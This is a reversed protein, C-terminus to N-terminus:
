EDIAVFKLSVGSRRTVEVCESLIQAKDEGLLKALVGDKQDKAYEERVEYTAQITTKVLTNIDAESMGGKRLASRVREIAEVGITYVAGQIKKDFYRGFMAGCAEEARVPDKLGLSDRKVSVQAAIDGTGPLNVTTGAETIQETVASKILGADIEYEAEANKLQRFAEYAEDIKEPAVLGTVTDVSSKRKARAM